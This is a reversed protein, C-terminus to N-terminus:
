RAPRSVSWRFPARGKHAAWDGAEVKDKILADATAADPTRLLAEALRMLTVGEATSLGYEQLFKDILGSRQADARASRVFAAAKERAREQPISGIDAEETLRRALAEEDAVYHARIEQRLAAPCSTGFAQPSQPFERAGYRFAPAMDHDGPVIERSCRPTAREPAPTYRIGIRQEQARPPSAIASKTLGVLSKGHGLSINKVGHPRRAALALGVAREM